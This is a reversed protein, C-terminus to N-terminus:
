WPAFNLIGEPIQSFDLCTSWIPFSGPETNQGFTHSMDFTTALALSPTRQAPAAAAAHTEFTVASQFFLRAQLMNELLM